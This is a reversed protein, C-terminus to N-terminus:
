PRGYEGGEIREELAAQWEEKVPRFDLKLQLFKSELEVADDEDGLLLLGESVIEYGPYPGVTSLDVLDVAEFGTERTLAATMEDLLAFRRDEPVDDGFAVAVDLDSLEGTTGTARSGFLMALSLPYEELSAALADVDLADPADGHRRVFRMGDGLREGALFGVSTEADM